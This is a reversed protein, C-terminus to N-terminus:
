GRIIKFTYVAVTCKTDPKQADKFTEKERVIKCLGEVEISSAITNITKLLDLNGKTNYAEDWVWFTFRVYMEEHTKFEESWTNLEWLKVYPLPADEARNTYYDIGQENFQRVFEKQINDRIIDIM